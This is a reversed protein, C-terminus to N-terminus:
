LAPAVLMGVAYVDGTRDDWRRLHTRRQIMDHHDKIVEVLSATADVLGYSPERSYSVLTL